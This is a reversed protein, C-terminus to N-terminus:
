CELQQWYIHFQFGCTRLYSNLMLDSSVCRHHFIYIKGIIDKLGKMIMNWHDKYYQMRMVHPSFLWTQFLFYKVEKAKRCPNRKGKLATKVLVCTHTLPYRPFLHHPLLLQSFQTMKFPNVRPCFVDSHSRPFKKTFIFQCM